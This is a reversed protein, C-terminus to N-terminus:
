FMKGSNEKRCNALEIAASRVEPDGGMTVMKMLDRACQMEMDSGLCSKPMKAEGILDSLADVEDQCPDMIPDEAERIVRRVIRKLDTETLRIIRKM